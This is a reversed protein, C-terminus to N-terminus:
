DDYGNFSRNKNKTWYGSSYYDYNLGYYSYSSLLIGNEETFSGYTDITGDSHLVAIKGSFLSLVGQGIMGVLKAMCYADSVRKPLKLGKVACVLILQKIADNDTGNFVLVPDKGSYSLPNEFLNESCVFPHTLDPSKGGSSALRFHIIFPLDLSKIISQVDKADLAKEYKVLGRESWAVGAGDSNVRAWSKIEDMSPKREKCIAIQCM